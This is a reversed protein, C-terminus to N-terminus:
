FLRRGKKIMGKDEERKLVSAPQVCENIIRVSTNGGRRPRNVRHRRRSIFFTMEMKLGNQGLTRKWRFM